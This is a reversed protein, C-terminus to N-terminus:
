AVVITGYNLYIEEGAAVDRSAFFVRGRNYSYAGAAPSHVARRDAYSNIPYTSELSQLLCHHNPLSGFTLQFDATQSALYAVHDPKGSTWWYQQFSQYFHRRAKAETENPSWSEDYDLIPISPYDPAQLFTEGQRVDRTTYIGYGPNGKMSARAMYISCTPIDAAPPPPAICEPLASGGASCETMTTTTAAFAPVTGLLCLLSALLMWCLSIFGPSCQLMSM